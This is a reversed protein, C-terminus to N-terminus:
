RTCKYLINGGLSQIELLSWMSDIIWKAGERIGIAYVRRGDPYEMVAQVFEGYERGDDFRYSRTPIQEGLPCTQPTTTVEPARASSWIEKPEFQKSDGDPYLWTVVEHYLLRPEEDFFDKAWRSLRLDARNRM